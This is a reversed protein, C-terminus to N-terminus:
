NLKDLSARLRRTIKRTLTLKKKPARVYKKAAKKAGVSKKKAAKKTAVAKKKAPKKPSRKASKKQVAQPASQKGILDDLAIRMKWATPDQNGDYDPVLEFGLKRYFAIAPANRKLVYLVISVDKKKKLTFSWHSFARKILTEACGQRRMDRATCVNWLELNGGYRSETLMLAIPIAGNEKQLYYVHYANAQGDMLKIFSAISPYDDKFCDNVIIMAIKEKTARSMTRFNSAYHLSASVSDCM